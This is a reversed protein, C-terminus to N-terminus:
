RRRPSKQSHLADTSVASGDREHDNAMSDHLAQMKAHQQEARQHEARRPKEKPSVFPSPQSRM